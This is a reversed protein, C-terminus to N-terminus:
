LQLCSGLVPSVCRHMHSGLVTVVKHHLVKQVSAGVALHCVQLLFRRHLQKSLREPLLPYLDVLKALLLLNVGLLHLFCLSPELTHLISQVHELVALLLITPLLM